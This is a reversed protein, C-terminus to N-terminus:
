QIFERTRQTICAEFVSDLKTHLQELSEWFVDKSFVYQDQFIEIDLIVSIYDPDPSQLPVMAQNIVAMAGVDDQPIQLQMFYGALGQPLDPSVEPVTRLFDKFDDFPLPIDIRNIYRVAIRNISEVQVMQAYIEWLRHAEDRFNEWRDYPALQSFVFGGLEARLNQKRNNSSCIYGVHTQNASAGISSGATVQSEILLSNDVHPYDNKIHATIGHLNDLTMNDTRVVRFDVIAETIPAKSYHRRERM